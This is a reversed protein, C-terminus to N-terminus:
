SPSGQAEDDRPRVNFSCASVAIMAIAKIDEWSLRKRGVPNPDPNTMLVGVLFQYNDQSMRHYGNV